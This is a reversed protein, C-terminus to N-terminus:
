LKQPQPIKYISKEIGNLIEETHKLHIEDVPFLVLDNLSQLTGCASMLYERVIWHNPKQPSQKVVTVIENEQPLNFKYHYKQYEDRSIRLRATSFVVKQGPKFNKSM